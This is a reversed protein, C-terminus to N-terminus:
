DLGELFALGDVFGSEDSAYADIDYEMDQPYAFYICTDERDFGCYSLEDEGVNITSNGEIWENTSDSFYEKLESIADSVNSANGIVSRDVSSSLTYSAYKGSDDEYYYNAKIESAGDVMGEKCFAVGIAPCYLGDQTTYAMSEKITTDLPKFLNNERLWEEITTGAEMGWFAYTSRVQLGNSIMVFNVDDYAFEFNDIEGKQMGNSQSIYEDLDAEEYYSCLFTVDGSDVNLTVVLAHESLGDGDRGIKLKLNDNKLGEEDMYWQPIAEKAIEAEVETEEVVSEEKEGQELTFEIVESDKENEVREEKKGCGYLVLVITAFFMLRKGMLVNQRM